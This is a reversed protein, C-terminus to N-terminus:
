DLTYVDAWVGTAGELRAPLRADSHHFIASFGDMRKEFLPEVAEPTVDRGTFGTGGTSIVLDVQGVVRLGRGSEGVDQGQGAAVRLAVRQQLQARGGDEVRVLRRPRLM